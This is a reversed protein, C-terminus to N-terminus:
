EKNPNLSKIKRIEWQKVIERVIWSIGKKISREKRKAIVAEGYTMPITDDTKPAEKEETSVQVDGLREPEEPLDKKVADPGLQVIESLEKQIEVEPHSEQVVPSPSANSTVEQSFTQTRDDRDDEDSIVNASEQTKNAASNINQQSQQQTAFQNSAAQTKPVADFASQGTKSQATNDM